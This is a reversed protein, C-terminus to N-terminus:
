NHQVDELEVVQIELEAVRATLEVIWSENRDDLRIIRARFTHYQRYRANHGHEHWHHVLRHHADVTANLITEIKM